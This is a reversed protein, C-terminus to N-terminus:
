QAPALMLGRPIVSPASVALVTSARGTINDYVEITPTISCFMVQNSGVKVVPAIPARGTAGTIEARDLDVFDAAGFGLNDIVKQKLLKGQNDYVDLEVKCPAQAILIPPAIRVVNVVNIRVTEGSALGLIGFSLTTSITSPGVTPPTPQAAAIGASLLLVTIVSLSHPQM